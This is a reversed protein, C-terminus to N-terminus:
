KGKLNGILDGVREVSNFCPINYKELIDRSARFSKFGMFCCIVNKGSSLYFKVVEKAIREDDTMEQPTLIVVAIDYFSKKKIKSFVEKFRLDDADGLVDIPNNHSWAAPLNFRLAPLKVIEVNNQELSDAMLIGPGGANTIVLTRFSSPKKQMSLFKALDLAETLNLAFHVGAQKFAAKYVEYSGALSGTHSHAARSGAKGSGGKVAIVPKKCSSVAKMFRRGDKLAEIYLMIIKTNSDKEFYELLEEFSVDAMDGVSAFKSFGLNNAISYDAIYSWLAGSQSIFGVKGHVPSVRAFTCDLNNSTNVVGFCNPGLIRINYKKAISLIDRELDERGAELFGASIIIVNKINKLACERLVNPVFVAPVAIICLDIKHKIDKLSVSSEKGFITEKHVNVFNVEGKFNVLHRALSYGVTGGKNSAGVVVISKPAFFVELGM